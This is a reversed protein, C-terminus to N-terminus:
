SWVQEVDEIIEELVSAPTAPNIVVGALRGLAKIRQVTRHLNANGEWHVLLSDSGAEAFTLFFVDDPRDIRGAEALAAGVASLDRRVAALALVIFYKPMGIGALERTRRLAFRLVPRAMAALISPALRIRETWDPAVAEEFVDVFEQYRRAIEAVAGERTTQKSRWGVLPEWFDTRGVAFGIFGPVGAAITLWERVKKEDAGRGLIICGVGDRGGRRAADVIRECDERRELGEIKWVDPEVGADQLERIAGVM